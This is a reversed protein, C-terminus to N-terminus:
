DSLDVDLYEEAYEKALMVDFNEAQSMRGFMDNLDGPRVGDLQPIVYMRVPYTLDIAGKKSQTEAQKLIDKIIAPGLPKHRQISRWLLRADSLVESDVDIGWSDAFDAVLTSDETLDDPDPVPVSIFAFRRMFAFSMRYLSAKDTTNMTAIMRWSRPIYYTSSTLPQTTGGTATDGILTIPGDEGEFPLMVTNGTLASFLSGFAKDIDARNLEDVILWENKATLTPTTTLFRQLFLGPSFQLEGTGTKNPRYGGITDFTSWDDTATTMEYNNPTYHEMVAKAIATKGSGPPGTLIIHKESRLADDIQTALSRTEGDPEIFHLGDFDPVDSASNLPNSPEEWEATGGGGRTSTLNDVRANFTKEIQQLATDFRGRYYSDSENSGDFLHNAFWSQLTETDMQWRRAAANLAGNRRTSPEEINAHDLLYRRTIDIIIAGDAPTSDWASHLHESLVESLDEAVVLEYLQRVIRDIAAKGKEAQYAALLDNLFSWNQQELLQDPTSAFVDYDFYEGNSAITFWQVPVAEAENQNDSQNSSSVSEYTQYEDGTLIGIGFVSLQYGLDQYAIVLDGQSLRARPSESAPASNSRHSGPELELNSKTQWEQWENKGDIHVTYLGRESGFLDIDIQSDTVGATAM